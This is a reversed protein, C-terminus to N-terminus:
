LIDKLLKKAKEIKGAKMEIAVAIFLYIDDIEVFNEKVYAEDLLEFSPKEVPNNKPRSLVYMKGDPLKEKLEFDIEM